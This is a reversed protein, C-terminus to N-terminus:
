FAEDKDSEREREREGSGTQRVRSVDIIDMIDILPDVELCPLHLGIRFLRQRYFLITYTVHTKVCAPRLVFVQM